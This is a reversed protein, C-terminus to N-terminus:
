SATRSLSSWPRSPLNTFIELTGWSYLIQISLTSVWRWECIVYIEVQRELLAATQNCRALSQMSSRTWFIRVLWMGSEKSMALLRNTGSLVIMAMILLTKISWWKNPMLLLYMEYLRKTTIRIWTSQYSLGIRGRIQISEVLREECSNSNIQYTCSLLDSISPAESIVRDCSWFTKNEYRVMTHFVTLPNRMTSHGGNGIVWEKRQDLEVLGWWITKWLCM